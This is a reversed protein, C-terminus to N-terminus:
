PLLNEPMISVETFDFFGSSSCTLGQLQTKHTYQYTEYYIPILPCDRTIIEEAKALLALRKSPRIEQQAKEILDQYIPDEWKAYNLRNMRYQFVSLTQRPDSVWPKWTITGLQYDGKILKPFLLHFPYKQLRCNIGLVEEWQRVLEHAVRERVSGESFDLTIMPFTEKTLGVEQLAENFLKKALGKNGSVEVDEKMMTQLLPLLSKAPMGREVCEQAIKERNIAYTFAQRMKLNDFPFRQTNIVCWQLGSPKTFRRQELANSFYPEWTRMPYGLWHVEDKKFMEFATESNNKTIFIRDLKVLESNWYYPNKVFEYGGNIDAKKLKFPGNCLFAEEGGQAWNPHLKDLKHNVPSFLAYATLELFEPTPNELDVVLTKEDIAKVGVKDLSIKGEKAAKANKIPYFSYAFPTYFSPSLIKKWAYEFDYALLRTHDSWYSPRLKFIYRKKDKSIDISKALALTPKSDRSIRTLGEFLMKVITSSIEDGGLRPDLSQGLDVFSLRLEQQNQINLNWKHIAQDILRQFQRQDSLIDSEYILGYLYSEQFKVQTRILSKSFNELGAIEENLFREFSSDKTRVVAFNLNKRKRYKQFFSSRKPLEKEKAELLLTFLIKLSTLPATAQAEIPTLSFFFNELLEQNKEVDERFAHKLQAFLEGQKLIMGGNYDRIEGLAQTIISVVKQRALYFNVSSDNRLLSNDKPIHLHFVNAEKPNKKRIFGVNQVRISNFQFEQNVEKFARELSPDHKKLVRVVLVTFTLDSGGQKDFNVMVQPLDSLYKLEQSLLLINRMVEEENRIMFVSPILREVRRKLEEKLDRKLHQIEKLDFQFGEKKELELYLHKILDHNAQYSYYSGKVIHASPVFKQVAALIHSDEFTEFRDKLRIAIILGLVPKAGFPFHLKTRVFRFELHRKEPSISLAHTVRKRMLYHSVVLHTLHRPLRLKRFAPNSLALFTSMERFVDMDFTDSLRHTLQRLYKQIQMSKQDFSLAKTDLIQELYKSSTLSLAFENTLLPLHQEILALEQGDEVLIKVEALFFLKKSIERMYFHINHFGLIQVEKEPILWKRILDPLVKEAKVERTPSCLFFLSLSEPTNEVKSWKILPLNSQLWKEGKEKSLSYFEEPLIEQLIEKAKELHRTLAGPILPVSFHPQISPLLSSGEGKQRSSLNKTLHQM